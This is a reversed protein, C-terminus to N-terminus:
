QQESHFIYLSEKIRLKCTTNIHTTPNIDVNMAIQLLFQRFNSIDINM